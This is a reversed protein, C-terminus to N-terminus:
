VRTRVSWSAGALCTWSRNMRLMKSWAQYGGGNGFRSSPRGEERERGSVEKVVSPM